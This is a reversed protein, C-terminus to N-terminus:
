ENKIGIVAAQAPAGKGEKRHSGYLGNQCVPCDHSAEINERSVGANKLDLLVARKLDVYGDHNRVLTAKPYITHFKGLVDKKVIFHKQCIGPGLGCILNAPDSGNTKFKEIASKVIQDIIGRWGAHLIGVSQLVPDYIFIPLCDAVTIMLFIGKEFTLLGDTEPIAKQIDTVGRGKEQIGVTAIKSSHALRAVVVDKSAINLVTLFHERNKIVEEASLRGFRMDGFNRTSIGQIIEPFKSFIAFKFFREEM